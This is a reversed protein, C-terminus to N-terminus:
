SFTRVGEVSRNNTGMIIIKAPQLVANCVPCKGQSDQRSEKPHKFCSFGPFKALHATILEDMKDTKCSKREDIKMKSADGMDVGKEALISLIQGLDKDTWPSNVAMDIRSIRGLLGQFKVGGGGEEGDDPSDVESQMEELAERMAKNNQIDLLSADRIAEYITQQKEPMRVYHMQTTREPLM